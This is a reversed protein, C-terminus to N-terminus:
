AAPLCFTLKRVPQWFHSASNMQFDANMRKGNFTRNRNAFLTSSLFNSYNKQLSGARSVHNYRVTFFFFIDILSLLILTLATCCIRALLCQSSSSNPGTAGEHPVVIFPPAHSLRALRLMRQWWSRQNFINRRKRRRSSSFYWTSGFGFLHTANIPSDVTVLIHGFTTLGNQEILKWRLWVLHFPPFRPYACDTPLSTYM